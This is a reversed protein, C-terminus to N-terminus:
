FNVRMKMEGLTWIYTDLKKMVEETTYNNCVQIKGINKLGNPDSFRFIHIWKNKDIQFM